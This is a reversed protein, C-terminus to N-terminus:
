LHGEIMMKLGDEITYKPRWNLLANASKIDAVVEFIENKRHTCQSLVPKNTKALKQAINIVCEVSHSVGSGINFIHHGDSLSIAKYFADVVDDIFVYDRKPSLDMVQIKNDNIINNVISPILFTSKQGPGFVNFLRLSTTPISDVRSAFECLQEAMCKSLAYPNSPAVPHKEDIPLYQPAGYVYTSALILSASHKRCYRLANETGLGNCRYFDTREGWSDPVFSRGALHIVSNAKPLADWFRENTIDGHTRHYSLSRVGLDFLRSELAKGIFGGAGTIIVDVM